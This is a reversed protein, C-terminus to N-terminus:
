LISSIKDAIVCVVCCKVSAFIEINRRKEHMERSKLLDVKFCLNVKNNLQNTQDFLYANRIKFAFLISINIKYEIKSISNNMNITFMIECVLLKVNNVILLLNISLFSFDIRNEYNLKPMAPMTELQTSPM